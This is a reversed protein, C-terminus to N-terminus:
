PKADELGCFADVPSVGKFPLNGLILDILIKQTRKIPNYCNVLTKMSPMEYLHYPNGLSVFLTPVEHHVNRMMSMDKGLDIMRITNKAMRGIITILFIILDYGRFIHRIGKKYTKVNFGRSKLLSKFKRTLIGFDGTRVLLVKEIKDINIPILNQTDKVLTISSKICTNSWEKHEKNGIIRKIKKKKPILEKKHLNLSAKLALVRMVAEDLRKVTIVGNDISNKILNFDYAREDSFLVMDVGSAITKPYVEEKPGQSMLSGMGVADTVILGNFGLEKRLLEINLKESIGAPVSKGNISHYSPLGIFSSMITKVGSDIVDKYVKGFSERWREIDFSNVSSVLHQDRDDVGDGPWHKATAAMGLEQIGKIYSCAMKSVLEPKDGYSRINIIPNQFNYNIDVLPSLTWNFGCANGERATVLGCRYAHIEDNTAGIGMQTNFFTGKLMGGFGGFELDGTILMPIRSNKQLFTVKKRQIGKLSLHLFVGGPNYRLIDKLKKKRAFVSVNPIMVQGIKEELTMANFTKNVWELADSGLFFPISKLDM